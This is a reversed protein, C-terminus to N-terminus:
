SYVLKSYIPLMQVYVQICTHLKPLGRFELEYLQLSIYQAYKFDILVSGMM